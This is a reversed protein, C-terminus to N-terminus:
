NVAKQLNLLFANAQFRLCGSERCTVTVDRFHSHSSPDKRWDGVEKNWRRVFGPHTKSQDTLWARYPVAVLDLIESDIAGLPFDAGLRPHLGMYLALLMDSVCYLYPDRNTPDMKSRPAAQGPRLAVSWQSSKVKLLSHQPMKRGRRWHRPGAAGKHGRGLNVDRM